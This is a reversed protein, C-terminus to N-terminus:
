KVDKWYVANLRWAVAVFLLLFLVVGIGLRVRLKQNPDSMWTMFAVLDAVSEDYQAPTM